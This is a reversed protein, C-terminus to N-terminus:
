ATEQPSQEACEAGAGALREGPGVGVPGPVVIGSVKIGGDICLGALLQRLDFSVALIDDGDHDVHASRIQFGSVAHARRVQGLDRSRGDGSVYVDQDVGAAALAPFVADYAGAYVLDVLGFVATHLTKYLIVAVPDHGIRFGQRAKDFPTGFVEGGVPIFQDEPIM